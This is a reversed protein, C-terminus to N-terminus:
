KLPTVCWMADTQLQNRTSISCSLDGIVNAIPHDKTWRGVLEFLTYTQRMNSSSGQSTLDDHLSEHLPDDCFTPTKPSAEVGFFPDNHMHAVDLDHNDEKVDNSIVHTQTEPTTQSDSPAPADQDVTTSSPSGTLATPEPAVVEATAAIVKPAPHDVSPPPTLLEDFLPQFLINWDTRLPPVFPTSSSPNPVLGSNITALTMKHLAPESSSHKSAMATLENFDIDAKLKLNGLNESDNTSYFFHVLYMSSHYTLFNTM